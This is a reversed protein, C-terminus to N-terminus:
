GRRTKSATNSTSENPLWQATVGKHAAEYQQTLQQLGANDASTIAGTNPPLVAKIVVSGGGGSGSSGGSSCAAALVGAVALATAASLTRRRTEHNTAHTM